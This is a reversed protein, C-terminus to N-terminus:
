PTALAADIAKQMDKVSPVYNRSVVKGNVYVMPVASVGRSKGLALDQDIEAQYRKQSFCTTFANLDAGAANAFALMREDTFAGQNERGQNAFLLNHYQWFLDQESACLSANAALVSEAGLIPYQHYIYHVKGVAVYQTIIKPEIETAYQKCAPCQFDSFVEVTVPANPDGLQLGDPLPFEFPDALKVVKTPTPGPTFAPANTPNSPAASSRCALMFFAAGTVIVWNLLRLRFPRRPDPM